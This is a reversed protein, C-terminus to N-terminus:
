VGVWSKRSNQTTVDLDFLCDVIANVTAELLTAPLRYNDGDAIRKVIVPFFSDIGLGGDIVAALAAAAADALALFATETWVNNTSYGESMGGIRKQGNKTSANERALTFGASVFSPMYQDTSGTVDGAESLLTEGTDTADFLNRASVRTTVAGSVQMALIDPMVQDVWYDVLFQAGISIGTGRQYFYVNKCQQGLFTYEHILEYVPNDTAM